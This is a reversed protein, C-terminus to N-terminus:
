YRDFNRLVDEISADSPMRWDGRPSIAVSGVKAGDPLCSRKFQNRYFRKLFSSLWYKLREDSYKDGYTVRLIYLLKEPRYQYRLFHYIIFDIVEYPGVVDETQQEIKGDKDPPLLEPSIPTDIIDNLSPATEKHLLAYGKCLYRVLTKPISANVGYMSMHDGNFTTWGLCLESLDGTGIMLSNEENALDMLVQTRERAQANEYTVNHNDIDHGIDKFHELLSNKLNIEQFSVGLENSLLLANKHTRNSTGFAPMTCAKIGKREYGLKDFAEVAVLLALTSDLGGSLGVIVKKQKTTELRKVLGMAQISLITKVRELDIEKENPIFPNKKYERLPKDPRSIPLNFYITEYIEDFNNKFPNLRIREAYLKELDIDSTASKMSFLPTKALIRGNESIINHSAFVLDTTSEGDGADAYVYASILRASTMSVLNERYESKGVVENSASLNGIIYAGNNALSTSPTNSVWLDECIEFSAAFLPYSSDKFIYCNGFPYFKGEFFITDNKGEYPAFHRLEYFEGYNPINKKPIFALIEGKFCVIACNYLKNDKRIPAGFAFLLSCDKTEELILKIHEHVSSLLSQNRFLDGCTYGTLCLEPLVLFSVKDSNAEKVLKIIEIANANVNSVSIKPTASRVRLFGLSDSPLANEVEKFNIFVTKKQNINLPNAKSKTLEEYREPDLIVLNSYGNKTIHLVGDNEKLDKELKNTDRLATIPQIKNM